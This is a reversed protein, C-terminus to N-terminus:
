SISFYISMVKIKKVFRKIFKEMLVDAFRNFFLIGFVANKHVCVYKCEYVCM